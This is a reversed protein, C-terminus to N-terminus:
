RGTRPCVQRRGWILRGFARSSRPRPRKGRLQITSQLPCAQDVHAVRGQIVITWGPFVAPHDM